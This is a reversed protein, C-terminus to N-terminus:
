ADRGGQIWRSLCRKMRALTNAMGSKLSGIAIGLIKAVESYTHHEYYLLFLREREKPPLKDICYRVAEDDQKKDLNKLIDGNPDPDSDVVASDYDIWKKEAIQSRQWDRFKNVVISGLYSKYTSAGSFGLPKELIEKFIKQVIEEAAYDDCTKSRTFKYVYDYYHTYLKTAAKDSGRSIQNLLDTITENSLDSM